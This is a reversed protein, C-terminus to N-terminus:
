GPERYGLNACRIPLTPSDLATHAFSRRLRDVLKTELLIIRPRARAHEHDVAHHVDVDCALKPIM